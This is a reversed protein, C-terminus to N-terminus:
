INIDGNHVCLVYVSRIIVCEYVCIVRKCMMMFHLHELCLLVSLTHSLVQSFSVAMSMPAGVLRVSSSFLNVPLPPRLDSELPPTNGHAPAGALPM